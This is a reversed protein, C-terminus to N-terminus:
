FPLPDDFDFPEPPDNEEQETEGQLLECMDDEYAVWIAEVISALFDHVALAEEPTWHTPVKPLPDNREPNM